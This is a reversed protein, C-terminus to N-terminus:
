MTEKLDPPGHNTVSIVLALLINSSSSDTLAAISFPIMLSPDLKDPTFLVHTQDSRKM